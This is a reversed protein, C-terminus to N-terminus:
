EVMRGDWWEVTGWNVLEVIFCNSLAFFFAPEM